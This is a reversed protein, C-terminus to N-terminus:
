LSCNIFCRTITAQVTYSEHIEGDDDPTRQLGYIFNITKDKDKTLLDDECLLDLGALSFFAITM